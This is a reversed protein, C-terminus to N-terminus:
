RLLKQKQKTSLGKLFSKRDEEDDSEVLNTARVPLHTQAALANAKMALGDDRMATVLSFADSVEADETRSMAQAFLPCERDTNIHGWKHCKICRVNRVQIGFPQDQIESDGKCYSHYNLNNYLSTLTIEFTSKEPHM